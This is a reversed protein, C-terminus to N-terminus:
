DDMSVGYILDGRRAAITMQNTEKDTPNRSCLPLPEGQAGSSLTSWGTM